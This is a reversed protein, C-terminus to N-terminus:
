NKKQGIHRRGTNSGTESTGAHHQTQSHRGLQQQDTHCFTRYMIRGTEGSQKNFYLGGYEQDEQDVQGAHCGYPAWSWSRIRLDGKYGLSRAAEQCDNEGVSMFGIHDECKPGDPLAVTRALKPGDPLAVTRATTPASVSYSLKHLNKRNPALDAESEYFENDKYIIQFKTNLSKHRFLDRVHSLVEKAKSKGGKFGGFEKNWSPSLYIRLPLFLFSPVDLNLSYEDIDPYQSDFNSNEVAERKKRKPGVSGGFKIFSNENEAVYDAKTEGMVALITGANSEEGLTEGYLISQIQISRMRQTCGTVLISSGIEEIFKGRYICEKDEQELQVVATKNNSWVLEILKEKEIFKFKTLKVINTDPDHRSYVISLIQTFIIFIGRM